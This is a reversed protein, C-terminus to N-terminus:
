CPRPPCSPQAGAQSSACGPRRGPDVSLTVLPWLGILLFAATASPYGIPMALRNYLFLGATGDGDLLRVAYSLALLASAGSVAVVAARRRAPTDVLLVTVAVAAAYVASRNAEQLAAGPFEAWAISVYQLGAYVAALALGVAPVLGLATRRGAVLVLITVALVLLAWPYWVAPEYSRGTRALALAVFAVLGLPLLTAVRPLWAPVTM